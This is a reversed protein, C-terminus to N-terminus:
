TSRRSGDNTAQRAFPHPSGPSIRLELPRFVVEDDKRFFPTPMWLRGGETASVVCRTSRHRHEGHSRASSRALLIHFAGLSSLHPVDFIRGAEYVREFRGKAQASGDFARPAGVERFAVYLNQHPRDLESETGSARAQLSVMRCGVLAETLLGASVSPSPTQSRSLDDHDEACEPKCAAARQSHAFAPLWSIRGRGAHFPREPVDRRGRARARARRDSRARRRVVGRVRRLGWVDLQRIGRRLQSHSAGFKLGMLLVVDQSLSPGDKVPVWGACERERGLMAAPELSPHQDLLALGDRNFCKGQQTTLCFRFSAEMSKARM